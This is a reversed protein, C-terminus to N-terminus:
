RRAHRNEAHTKAMRKAEALTYQSGIEKIDGNPQHFRVTYISYTTDREISYAWGWNPTTGHWTPFVTHTRKWDLKM